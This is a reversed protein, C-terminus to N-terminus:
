PNRHGGADERPFTRPLHSRELHREPGEKSPEGSGAAEWHVFAITDANWKM